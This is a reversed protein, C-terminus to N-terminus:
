KVTRHVGSIASSASPIRSQRLEYNKAFLGGGLQIAESMWEHPRAFVYTQLMPHFSISTNHSLTYVCVLLVVQTPTINPPLTSFISPLHLSPHILSGCSMNEDTFLSQDEITEFALRM